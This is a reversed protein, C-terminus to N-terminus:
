QSLILTKMKRDRSIKMGLIRKSSGLDKMAFSKSLDKKLKRIAQMNTSAILMDDVYLMLTISKGDGLQKTYVCHNSNCRTFGHDLMFRDFKLYWQGPAQKLGYLSKKLRCVMKEKGKAECGKPQHMYIEKELNGHLFTTKVDMQELHMDQIAVLSLIARIFNM